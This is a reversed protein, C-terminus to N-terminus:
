ENFKNVVEIIINCVSKSVSEPEKISCISPFNGGSKTSITGFRELLEKVIIVRNEAWLCEPFELVIVRHCLKVAERIQGCFDKRTNKILTVQNKDIEQKCTKENIDDPFKDM